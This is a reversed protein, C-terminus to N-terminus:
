GDACMEMLDAVAPDQCLRHRARTVCALVISESVCVLICGMVVGVARVCVGERPEAHKHGCM